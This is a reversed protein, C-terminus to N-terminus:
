KEPAVLELETFPREGRDVRAQRAEAVRNETELEQELQIRLERMSREIEEWSNPDVPVAATRDHEDALSASPPERADAAGEPADAFGGATPM